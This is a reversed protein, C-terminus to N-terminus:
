ASVAPTPTHKSCPARIRTRCGPSWCCMSIHVKPCRRGRRRARRRRRGRLVDVVARASPRTASRGDRHRHHAQAAIAALDPQLEGLLQPGAGAGADGWLQLVDPLAAGTTSGVARTPTTQDLAFGVRDPVVTVTRLLYAARAGGLGRGAVPLSRCGHRTSLDGGAHTWCSASWSRKTSPPPCRHPPSRSRTPICGSGCADVTGGAERAPPIPDGPAAAAARRHEPRSSRIWGCWRPTNSTSCTTTPSRRTACSLKAMASRDATPPSRTSSGNPRRRPDDGTRRRPVATPSRSRTPGAPDGCGPGARGARGSWSYSSPTPRTGDLADLEADLALSAATPPSWNPACRTRAASDPRAAAGPRAPGSRRGAALRTDGVLEAAIQAAKM